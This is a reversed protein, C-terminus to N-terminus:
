VLRVADGIAIPGPELVQAYVGACPEEGWGPLPPIRNHRALTRLVAADRALEGHELTPVACRPTACLVRLRLSEGIRLEREPWQTEAFASGPTDLVLNPRFRRVDVPALEGLEAIRRLTASTILHLPAFDFFAGGPSASGIPSLVSEVEAEPGDRLVQEPVARDLVADAPPTDSLHVERGTYASLVQDVGADTSWVPKGGPVRIRVAEQELSATCALLSRWLRPAKASAVKGTEQDILALRRDGALGGASAETRAIREGLMSKVPYRWLQAV